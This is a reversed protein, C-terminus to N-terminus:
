LGYYRLYTSVVFHTGNDSVIVRPITGISYFFKGFATCTEIATLNKLPICEIWRTCHDVIILLYNFGRPSAPIIPGACDVSVIEFVTAPRM